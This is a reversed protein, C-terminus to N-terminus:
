MYRNSRLSPKYVDFRNPDVDPMSSRGPGMVGRQPVTGDGLVAPTYDRHKWGLTYPRDKPMRSWDISWAYPDWRLGEFAHGFRLDTEKGPNLNIRSHYGYYDRGKHTVPNHPVGMIRTVWSSPRAWTFSGAYTDSWPAHPQSMAMGTLEGGAGVAAAGGLMKGWHAKTFDRTGGWGAKLGKLLTDIVGATKIDTNDADSSLSNIAGGKLLLLPKRRKKKTDTSEVALLEDALGPQILVNEGERQALQLKRVDQWAKRKAKRDSSEYGASFGAAGGLAASGGLLGLYLEIASADKISPALETCVDIYNDLVAGLDNDVVNDASISSTKSRQEDVLAAMFKERAKKKRDAAKRERYYELSDRVARYGGVSGLAIAGIGAPYVWPVNYWNSAHEGKFTGALDQLRDGEKGAVSKVANHVIPSAVNVTRDALGSGNGVSLAYGAGALGVGGAVVLGPPSKLLNGLGSLSVAGEKEQVDDAVPYYLIGKGRAEDMLKRRYKSRMHSLLSVGGGVGASLVGLQVVRKVATRQADSLSNGGNNVGM